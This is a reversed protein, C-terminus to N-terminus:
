RLLNRQVIKCGAELDTIANLGNQVKVAIKWKNKFLKANGIGVACHTISTAMYNYTCNSRCLQLKKGTFVKYM